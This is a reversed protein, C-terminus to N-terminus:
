VCVFKLVFDEAHLPVSSLIDANTQCLFALGLAGCGAVSMHLLINQM